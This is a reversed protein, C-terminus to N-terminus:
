NYGFPLLFSLVYNVFFGTLINSVPKEYEFRSYWIYFVM